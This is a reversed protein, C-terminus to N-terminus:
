RVVSDGFFVTGNVLNKLFLDGSVVMRGLGCYPEIFRHNDQGGRGPDSEKGPLFDKIKDWHANSLKYKISVLGKKLSLNAHNFIQIDVSGLLLM